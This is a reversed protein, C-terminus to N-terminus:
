EVLLNYTRKTVGGRTDILTASVAFTGTATPTGGIRCTITVRKSSRETKCAKQIIIGPPLNAIALSLTDTRDTDYGVIKENYTKSKRANTLSKTSIVPNANPAPSPTPTPTLTPTPTNTPTPDTTPTPTVTPTPTPTPPPVFAYTEPSPFTLIDSTTETQVIKTLEQDFAVTLSGAAPASWQFTGLTVFGTMVFPTHPDQTTYALKFKRGSGSTELISVVLRLGTPVVPDFSFDGPITGTVDAVVQFGDIASSQISSTLTVIANTGEVITTSSPTLFISATGGPTAAKRRLEQNMRVGVVTIIIAALLVAAVLLIRLLSRRNRAHIMLM